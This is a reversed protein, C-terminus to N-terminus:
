QMENARVVEHEVSGGEIEQDAYRGVCQPIEMESHVKRGGSM